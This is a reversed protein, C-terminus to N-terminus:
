GRSERSFDMLDVTMRWQFLSVPVPTYIVTGLECCVQVVPFVCPSVRVASGPFIEGASSCWRPEAWM